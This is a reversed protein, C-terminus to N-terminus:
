PVMLPDPVTVALPAFPEFVVVEPTLVPISAAPPAPPPPVMMRFELPVTEPILAAALPPLPPFWFTKGPTFSASPGPPPPPPPYMAMEVPAIVAVTFAPAFPTVLELPSVSNGGFPAVLPAAPSVLWGMVASVTLADLTVMQEPLVAVSVALRAPVIEAVMVQYLAAAPPVTSPVPVVKVVGTSVELV